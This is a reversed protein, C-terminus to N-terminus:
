AAYIQAYSYYYMAVTRPDTTKGTRPSGNVGDSTPGSSTQDANGSSSRLLRADASITSGTVESVVFITHKHSQERDMKRYGGVIEYGADGSQAPVFGTLKHLRATTTSGAIRYPYLSATQAGSPPTGTVTVQRLVLDVNASIAYSTGAIDVSNQTAATTYDGGGLFNAPEGTNLWKSVIADESLAKLMANAETTNPFTIVSGAVTVSFASVGNIVAKVNRLYPVLVPYNTASIDRDISRDVYPFLASTTLKDPVMLLSNLVPQEGMKLLEWNTGNYIFRRAQGIPIYEIVGSRYQVACYRDASGTVLVTMEYGTIQAGATANLAINGGASNTDAIIRVVSRRLIPLAAPAATTISIFDETGIYKTGGVTTGIAPRETDTTLGLEYPAVAGIGSALGKSQLIRATITAM